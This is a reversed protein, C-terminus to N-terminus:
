SYRKKIEELVQDLAIEGAVYREFLKLTEPTLEQGEIRASAIADRVADARKERETPMKTGVTKVSKLGFQHFLWVQLGACKCEHRMLCHGYREPHPTETHQPRPKAFLDALGLTTQDTM